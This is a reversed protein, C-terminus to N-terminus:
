PERSQVLWIREDEDLLAPAPPPLPRRPRFPLVDAARRQEVPGFREALVRAFRPALLLNYTAQSGPFLDLAAERTISIMAEATPRTLRHDNQIERLTNDVVRALAQARLAEWERAAALEEDSVVVENASNVLQLM